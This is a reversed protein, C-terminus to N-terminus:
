PQTIAKLFPDRLLLTPFERVFQALHAFRDARFRFAKMEALAQEPTWQERSIRYCAVMVGTREAGRQCHVFVKREPNDRLVGLFEATQEPKPDQKGRWPISVYRMGQAEVLVRERAIWDPEHRLNVVIDIGLKKLEAFGSDEPQAGRYLQHSVVALHPLGVHPTRAAVQPQVSQARSAAMIPAWLALAVLLSARFRSPRRM